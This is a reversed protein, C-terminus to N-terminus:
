SQQLYFFYLNAFSSSDYLLIRNNIELVPIEIVKIKQGGANKFELSKCYCFIM